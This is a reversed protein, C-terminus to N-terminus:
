AISTTNILQSEYEANVDLTHRRVYVAYIEESRRCATDRGLVETVSETLIRCRQKDDM